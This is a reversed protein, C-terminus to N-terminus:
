GRPQVLLAAGRRPAPGRQRRHEGRDPRTGDVLEHPGRGPRHVERAARPGPAAAPETGWALNGDVYLTVNPADGLSSRTTHSFDDTQDFPGSGGSRFVQVQIGGTSGGAPLTGSTFALELYRDGGVRAPEVTGVARRVKSCDLPAPVYNCRSDLGGSGYDNTFWYRLTVTTLDLAADGTNEVQLGLTVQEREDPAPSM